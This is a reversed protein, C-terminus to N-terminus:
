AGKQEWIQVLQTLVELSVEMDQLSVWELCTHTNQPGCSIYPTPLGMETLVTGDGCARVAIKRAQIGCAGYAEAAFQVPRPDKQLWYGMNRYAKNIVPGIVTARPETAAVSECLAKLMEAKARLGELEFDQLSFDIRVEASGGRIERVHIYGERGSTLEPSIGEKDLATLLRAALTLANVLRGKGFGPHCPVGKIKVVADDTSFMECVLHDREGGDVNYGVAAGLEALDLNVTSRGIEEDPNFCIRIKGHPISPDALLRAALTMVVALGAKDDAGLLTTGSATLITDGKREALYPCTEPKIVQTPDDPLVIPAGDYNEHILPKVDQGSCGPATDVHAVLAIVPINPKPSTAPITALLRGHRTVVVDKAGLEKLEQELLRLLEWQGPTSPTSPTSDVGRRSQTDIRVYRLFRDLLTNM